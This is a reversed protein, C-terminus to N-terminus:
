LAVRSPARCATVPARWEPCCARLRSRRAWTWAARSLGSYASARGVLDHAYLASFDLSVRGELKASLEQELVRALPEVTLTLYRRFAERQSTGDADSSLSPPTGTAALVEGFADRRALVMNQDVAGGIRHPQWDRRPAEAKDARWGAATTEPLFVRGRLGAIAARLESLRGAQNQDAPVPIISGRPGSSEDAIHREAESLLRATGGAWKLPGAGVYPQGPTSGWKMFVVGAFPLRHTESVSPGYITARVTWSDPDAGGSFHWSAAPILRVDGARSVRIVHLSEGSRVLDRGVQALFAGSVADLAHSPGEVRASAFSRSLSGAAAELAATAGADAVTGAAQAEILRLVADSYSGGSERREWPWRLRMAM